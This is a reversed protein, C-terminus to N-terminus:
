LPMKLFSAKSTRLKLNNILRLSLILVEFIPINYISFISKQCGLGEGQKKPVMCLGEGQEKVRTNDVIRVM